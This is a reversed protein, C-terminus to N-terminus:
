RVIDAIWTATERLFPRPDSPRLVEYRLGPRWPMLFRGLATLRGPLAPDHARYNPPARLIWLLHDVDGWFWRSSAGVRYGSDPGSATDGGDEVCHELLLRPLDLGADIALQLSGWFRGNIEMLYPTGTARDEKFEIMAPGTWGLQRLLADSHERLDARLPITERLVSVGGTPPKERLRRHGYAALIAGERALFFAGLGPGVIREQVMIPFAEPRFARLADRLEDADVVIRVETKALGEGIAVVSRHPKLVVPFGVDATWAACTEDEPGQITCSRPVPIGLSAATAMLAQKNSAEAWVQYPPFPITVPLEGGRHPLLATASMDTMPILVDLRRSEVLALVDDTFAPVNDQLNSVAHTARAYRSAGALPKRETSCVEVHHGARGLSRVVALSSRAEGDTVLVRAM